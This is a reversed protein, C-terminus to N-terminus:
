GVGEDDGGEPLFKEKAASEKGPEGVAKRHGLGLPEGGEGETGDMEVSGGENRESEEAGSECADISRLVAEDRRDEEM